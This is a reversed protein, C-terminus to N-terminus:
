LMPGAPPSRSNTFFVNNIYLNRISAHSNVSHFQVTRHGSFLETHGSRASNSQSSNFQISNSQTSNFQISNSQFGAWSLGPQLTWHGFGFFDLFNDAWAPISAPQTRWFACSQLSLAEKEFFRAPTSRRVPDHMFHRFVYPKLAALETSGGGRDATEPGGEERAQALIVHTEWM